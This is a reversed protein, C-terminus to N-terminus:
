MNNLHKTMIHRKASSYCAVYIHIFDLFKNNKKVIEYLHSHYAIYKKKSEFKPDKSEKEKKYAAVASELYEHTTETAYNFCNQICVAIKDILLSYYEMNSEVQAELKNFVSKQKNESEKAIKDYDSYVLVLVKHALAYM